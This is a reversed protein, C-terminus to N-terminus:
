VDRRRASVLLYIWNEVEALIIRVVERNDAFQHTFKNVHEVSEDFQVFADFERALPGVVYELRMRRTPKPLARNSRQLWIDSKEVKSDPALLHLVENLLERIGAAALRTSAADGKAMNEWSRKRLHLLRSDLVALQEELKAGVEEDRHRIEAHNGKSLNSPISPPLSRVLLAHDLVFQGAVAVTDGAKAMQSRDVVVRVATERLNEWAAVNKVTDEILALRPSLIETPWTVPAIEPLTLNSTAIAQSISAITTSLQSLSSQELAQQFL